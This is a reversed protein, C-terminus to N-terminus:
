RADTGFTEQLVAGVREVGEKMARLPHALLRGKLGEGKPYISNYHVEAFFSLWLERKSKKMSEEPDIQLFCESEFSTVLNIRLGFYDAVAKLTVHDGWEGERAMSSCYSSFDSPVFGEYLSPAARLQAVALARLEAHDDENRWLQDALARFQCNGDGRVAFEELGHVDLRLALRSEPGNLPPRPPKGKDKKPTRKNIRPLLKHFPLCGAAGRISADLRLSGEDELPLSLRRGLAPSGLTQLREALKADEACQLREALKADRTRPSCDAEESRWLREALERDRREQASASASASAAGERRPPPGAPARSGAEEEGEDGGGSRPSASALDVRGLGARLGEAAAATSGGTGPEPAEAM